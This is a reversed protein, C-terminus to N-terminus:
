VIEAPPDSEEPQLDCQMWAVDRWLGHKYGVREYRGVPRFGFSAHFADSAVNPQAVGAFVRRYGRGALRTLLASYLARGAGSRHRHAAVYVSVEATWRYAARTNFAHAYAYGAVGEDDECVLWDHLCQADAIRAAMEEVSPVETEFTIATDLVFPRYIEVCSAADDVTARRVLVRRQNM